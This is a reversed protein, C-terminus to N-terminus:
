KTNKDRKAAMEVMTLASVSFVASAHAVQEPQDRHFAIARVFAVHRTLRYCEATVLISQRPTAPRLYDIRLDLTSIARFEDLKAYVALGCATDMISSVAGGSIVGTEPDGVLKEQYPLELTVKDPGMHDLLLGLAANHPSRTLFLEPRFKM